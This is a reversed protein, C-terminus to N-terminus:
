EKNRLPKTLEILLERLWILGMDADQQKNWIFGVEVEPVDFPLDVYRIPFSTKSMHVAINRPITAILDSHTLTELAPMITSFIVKVNRSTHLDALAIDTLFSTQSQVNIALHEAETYKKLTMPESFIPNDLRGACVPYDKFAIHYGLQKYPTRFIGVGIDMQLLDFKEPTFEFCTVVRISIKSNNENLYNYLKPLIMFESYDTMGITFIRDSTKFNFSDEFSLVCEINDLIQAVKPALMLAKKTPIMKKPTRILLKDQFIRRLQQLSSSVAPQTLFLKAAARSIHQEQMLVHFVKLLNLNVKNINM